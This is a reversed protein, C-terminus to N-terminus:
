VYFVCGIGLIENAVAVQSADREGLFKFSLSFVTRCPLLYLAKAKYSSKPVRFM